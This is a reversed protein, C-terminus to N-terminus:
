ADPSVKKGAAKLGAAALRKLADQISMDPEPQQERWALLNELLRPKIRVYTVYSGGRLPPRSPMTTSMAYVSASIKHSACDLNTDILSL